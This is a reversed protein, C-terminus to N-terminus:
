QNLFKQRAQNIKNQDAAETPYWGNVHMTNFIDAQINHEDTLINLMATRLETNKCEGAFTNYTATTQKQSSLCDQLIDKETLNTTQQM